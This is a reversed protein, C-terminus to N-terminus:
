AGDGAEAWLWRLDFSVVGAMLVTLAGFAWLAVGPLVHALHSLKVLAVLVGLMFVEIMGWPRLARVFRFLLAFGAGPPRRRAAMLFLLLMSVLDILPFLLSTAGVLVAVLRRGDSWLALISGALTAGNRIGQVELDVIPYANALMFVVLAGVVLALMQDARLRPRRYLVAGCRVCRAREGVGLWRWRHLTDCEPCAVLTERM